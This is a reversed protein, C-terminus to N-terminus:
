WNSLLKNLVDQIIQDNIEEFLQSQISGVDQTADFDAFRSVSLKMVDEEPESIFFEFNARITLRNKVDASNDQLSLQTVDYSQVVGSVTVQPDDNASSVLSLGVRNQIADKIEETLDPAYNIPANAANSELTSVMFRKWEPPVSGDRFSVSTPWCSTFLFLPIFFMYKM